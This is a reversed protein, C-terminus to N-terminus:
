REWWLAGSGCAPCTSAASDDRLDAVPSRPPIDAKFTKCRQCVEGSVPEDTKAIITHKVWVHSCAQAPSPPLAAKLDSILDIRGKGNHHPFGIAKDVAALQRKLTQVYPHCDTPPHDPQDGCVRCAAYEDDKVLDIVKKLAAETKEFRDVGGPLTNLAGWPELLERLRLYRNSFNNQADVFDQVIKLVEDLNVYALAGTGGIARLRLLKLRPSEM